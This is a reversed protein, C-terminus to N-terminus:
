GSGIENAMQKARDADMSTLSARYAVPRLVKGYLMGPLALDSTYKHKGTVFERGDVKPEPKGAVTWKEPSILPPDDPLAKALQQGQLLDGYRVAQHNATNTIAGDGASLHSRNVALRQAALDIFAPILRKGDKSM